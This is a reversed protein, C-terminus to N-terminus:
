RGHVGSRRRHDRRASAASRRRAHARRRDRAASPVSRRPRRERRDTDLARPLPKGEATVLRARGPQRGGDRRERRHSIELEVLGVDLVHDSLDVGLARGLAGHARTDRRSEIRSGDKASLELVILAGQGTELSRTPSRRSTSRAARARHGLHRHRLAHRRGAVARAGRGRVRLKGRVHERHGQCPDPEGGDRVRAAVRRPHGADRGRLEKAYLAQRRDRGTKVTPFQTLTYVVQALGAGRVDVASGQWGTRSSSRRLDAERRGLDSRTRRRVHDARRGTRGSGSQAVAPTKPVERAVPQVKGDLLFYM